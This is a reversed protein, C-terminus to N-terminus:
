GGAWCTSGAAAGAEAHAKVKESRLRPSAGQGATVGPVAKRSKCGSLSSVRGGLGAGQVGAAVLCLSAPLQM